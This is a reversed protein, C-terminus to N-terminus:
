SRWLLILNLSVVHVLCLEVTDGDPSLTLPIRERIRRLLLEGHLAHGNEKINLKM